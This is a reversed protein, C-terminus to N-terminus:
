PAPDAAVKKPLCQLPQTPCSTGAFSPIVGISLWYDLMSEVRLVLRFEAPALPSVLAQAEQAHFGDLRARIFYTGPELAAFEIAGEQSTFARAVVQGQQLVEVTVGPLEQGTEDVVVVSVSGLIVALLLASILM